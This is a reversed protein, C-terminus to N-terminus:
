SSITSVTDSFIESCKMHTAVRGQSIDSMASLGAVVSVLQIILTSRAQCQPGLCGWSLDPRSHQKLPGKLMLTSLLPCYILFYVPKKRNNIIKCYTTISITKNEITAKLRIRQYKVLYHLSVIPTTLDKAMTNPRSCIKEQNGRLFLKSFRSINSSTIPTYFCQWNKVWGTYDIRSGDRRKKNFWFNFFLLLGPFSPIVPSIILCPPGYKISSICWSHLLAHFVPIAGVSHFFDTRTRSCLFPLAISHLM